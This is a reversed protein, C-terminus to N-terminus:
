LKSRLTYICYDANPPLSDALCQGEKVPWAVTISVVSDSETVVFHQQFFDPVAAIEPMLEEARKKWCALRSAGEKSTSDCTNSPEEGAAKWFGTDPNSLARIDPKAARLTEMYESALMAAMQRRETDTANEIARTFMGAAGLMGISLVLISVLIELLSFGAVRSPRPPYTRILM